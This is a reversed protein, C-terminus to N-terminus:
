FFAMESQKMSIVTQAYCRLLDDGGELFSYKNIKTTQESFQALLFLSLKFVHIFSKKQHLPFLWCTSPLTHFFLQLTAKSCAPPVQAMIAGRHLHFIVADRPKRARPPAPCCCRPVAPHPPGESQQFHSKEPYSLGAPELM